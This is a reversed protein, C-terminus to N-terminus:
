VSENQEIGAAGGTTLGGYANLELVLLAACQQLQEILDALLDIDALPWPDFVM